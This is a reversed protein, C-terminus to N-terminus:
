LGSAYSERFTTCQEKPAQVDTGSMIQWGADLKAMTFQNVGCGVLNGDVRITFPAWVSALTGYQETRIDFLEEHARGVQLTAVWDRWRPLGNPDIKGEANVRRLTAGEAFIKDLMEADGRYMAIMTSYATNEPTSLDLPATAYDPPAIPSADAQPSTPASCASILAAALTLSLCFRTM